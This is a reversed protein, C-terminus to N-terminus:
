GVFIGFRNMAFMELGAHSLFNIEWADTNSTFAGGGFGTVWEKYYRSGDDTQLYNIRMSPVSRATSSNQDNYTVTNGMPAVIGLDGYIGGAYGMFNPDSFIDLTQVAFKHQGRIFWTFDMNVGNTQGANQSLSIFPTALGAGSAASLGQLGFDSIDLTFNFGSWLWNEKDGRYKQLNTVMNDIDSMGFAGTTYGEVNGNASIEPILGNTTSVSDADGISLSGVGALGAKNTISQMALLAAERENLFRINENEIGAYYWFYGKQGNRGEVEIWTKVGMETGTVKHNRRFIQLQNTFSLLGSNRSEGGTSAEAQANSIIIIDETTLIQPTTAASVNAIASFTGSAGTATVYLQAGNAELVDGVQVMYTTYTDTTQYPSQGSYVYSYATAATYGRAASGSATEASASLRIVGHLRDQEYHHYQIANIPNLKGMKEMLGTIDQKGFRYVLFPAVEPKHLGAGGGLSLSNLYNYETAVKTIAPTLGSVAM